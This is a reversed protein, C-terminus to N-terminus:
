SRCGAGADIGGGSDAVVIPGGDGDIRLPLRAALVDICEIEGVAGTKDIGFFGFRDIRGIREFRRDWEPRGM